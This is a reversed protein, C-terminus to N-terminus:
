ALLFERAFFLPMRRFGPEETLVISGGLIIETLNSSFFLRASYLFLFIFFFPSFVFTISSSSPRRRRIKVAFYSLSILLSHQYSVYVSVMRRQINFERLFRTQKSENIYLKTSFIIQFRCPERTRFGSKFTYRENFM